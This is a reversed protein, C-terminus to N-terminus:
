QLFNVIIHFLEPPDFAQKIGPVARAPQRLWGHRIDDFIRQQMAITLAIAQQRPAHHGVMHMHKDLCPFTIWQGLYHLAPLRESGSQYVPIETSGTRQPHAIIKIAINTVIMM